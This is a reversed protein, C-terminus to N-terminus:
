VRAGEEEMWTTSKSFPASWCVTCIGPQAARNGEPGPPTDASHASPDIAVTLKEPAVADTELLRGNKEAVSSGTKSVTPTSLTFPTAVKRLRAPLTYVAVKPSVGLNESGQDMWRAAPMCSGMGGGFTAQSGPPREGKALLRMLPRM